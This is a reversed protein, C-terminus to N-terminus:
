NFYELKLKFHVVHIISPCPWRWARMCMNSAKVLRVCTYYWCNPELNHLWNLIGAFSSKGFIHYHPCSFTWYSSSPSSMFPIRLSSILFYFYLILHSLSIFTCAFSCTHVYWYTSILSVYRDNKNNLCSKHDHCTTVRYVHLAFHHEYCSM